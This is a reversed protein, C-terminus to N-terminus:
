CQTNKTVRVPIMAKGEEVKVGKTGPFWYAPSGRTGRTVTSPTVPTTFEIGQAGDPLPGNYAKVSPIDSGRAPNGWLEGSSEITKADAATQTPSELRHFKTQGQAVDGGFERTGGRVLDVGEPVGKRAAKLEVGSSATVLGIM